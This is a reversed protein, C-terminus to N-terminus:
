YVPQGFPAIHDANPIRLTGTRDCNSRSVFEIRSDKVRLRDLDAFTRLGGINVDSDGIRFLGVVNVPTHNVGAASLRDRAHLHRNASQRIIAAVSALIRSVYRLGPLISPKAQEAHQRASVREKNLRFFDITKDTVWDDEVDTIPVRGAKLQSYSFASRDA